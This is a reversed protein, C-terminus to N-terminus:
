AAVRQDAEVLFRDLEWSATTMEQKTLVGHEAEWAAVARLGERRKLFFDAATTMWASFSVGDDKAATDVRAAIDSDITM